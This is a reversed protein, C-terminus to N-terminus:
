YGLERNYQHSTMMKQIGHMAKAQRAAGEESVAQLWETVPVVGNKYRSEMTRTRRALLDIIRDDYAILDDWQALMEAQRTLNLRQGMEFSEKERDVQDKEVKLRKKDVGMTYTRGGIPWSVNIGGMLLHNWDTGGQMELKPVTLLGMGQLSVRPLVEGAGPNYADLLQKRHEFLAMEPRNDLDQGHHLVVDPVDLVATEGVPRGIFIALMRRYARESSRLQVGQQEIQLLKVEVADADSTFASGAKAASQLTKLSQELTEQQLQLQERQTQALLIGFYIESVKDKLEAIKIEVTSKNVEAEARAIKKRNELQGGDWIPQEVQLIGAFRWPDVEMGMGSLDPIGEIYGGFATINAHLIYGTNINKLNYDRSRDILQLQEVLPYNDVAWQLCSDLCLSEQATLRSQFCAGLSLISLTLLLRLNKM